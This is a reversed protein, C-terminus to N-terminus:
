IQRVACFGQFSCKFKSELHGKELTVFTIHRKELLKIEHVLIGKFISADYTSVARWKRESVKSEGKRIPSSFPRIRHCTM